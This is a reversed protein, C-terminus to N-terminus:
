ERGGYGVSFHMPDKYSHWSGGWQLGYKAALAAINPPLAEIMKGGHTVPNRSPDIDIAYGLSHLSKTNTGAINRNAYSGIVKPRYGTKWLANLFSVFVPAVQSDLTLGHGRWNIHVLPTNGYPNLKGVESLTTAGKPVQYNYNISGPDQWTNITRQPDQKIFNQQALQQRRQAELMAQYDRKNQAEILKTATATQSNALVSKQLQEYYPETQLDTDLEQPIFQQFVPAKYDQTQEKQKKFKTLMNQIVDPTYYNPM